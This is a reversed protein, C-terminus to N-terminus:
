HRMNLANKSSLARSFCVFPANRQMNTCIEASVSFMTKFCLHM